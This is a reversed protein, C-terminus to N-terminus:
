GYDKGYNISVVRGVEVYRSFPMAVSTLLRRCGFLAESGAAKQM